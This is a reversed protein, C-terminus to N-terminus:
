HCKRQPMKPTEMTRHRLLPQALVNQLLHQLRVGMSWKPFLLHESGPIQFVGGPEGM